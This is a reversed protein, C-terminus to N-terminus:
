MYNCCAIVRKAEDPRLFVLTSAVSIPARNPIYEFFSLGPRHSGQRSSYRLNPFTAPHHTPAVRASAAEHQKAKFRHNHQQHHHDHVSPLALPFPSSQRTRPSSSGLRDLTGRRTRPTNGYECMMTTNTVNSDDGGGGSDGKRARREESIRRTNFTNVPQPLEM